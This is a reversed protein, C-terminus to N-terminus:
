AARTSWSVSTCVGRPYCHLDADRPCFAGLSVVLLRRLLGRCCTPAGVRSRTGSWDAHPRRSAPVDWCSLRALWAGEPVSLSPPGVGARPLLWTMIALMSPPARMSTCADCSGVVTSFCWLVRASMVPVRLPCPRRLLRCRCRSLHRALRSFRMPLAWRRPGGTGRGVILARDARMRDGTHM